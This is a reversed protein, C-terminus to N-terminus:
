LLVCHNCIFQLLDNRVAVTSEAVEFSRDYIDWVKVASEDYSVLSWDELQMVGMIVRDHGKLTNVCEQGNPKTLDWIKLTKDSAYSVLRGDALVIVKTIFAIHGNLTRICQERDPKTWDLIKITEGSWSILLNNRLETIGEPYHINCFKITKVCEQGDPQQLNWIKIIARFNNWSVLLGNKLVILGMMLDGGNNLIRVCEQGDPKTLDWITIKCDYAFSAFCDYELPRIGVIKRSHGRLTKVYEQGPPKKLNWVMIEYYNTFLLLYESTLQVGDCFAPSNTFLTKEHVLDVSKTVSRVELNKEDTCTVLRNDQLKVICDIRRAAGLIIKKDKQDNSQKLDLLQLNGEYSSQVILVRNSLAKVTEVIDNGDFIKLTKVCQIQTNPKKHNNIERLLAAMKPLSASNFQPDYQIIASRLNETLISRTQPALSEFQFNHHLSQQDGYYKEALSPAICQFSISQKLRRCTRKLVCIDRVDLYKAINHLIETPLSLLGASNTKIINTATIKIAATKQHKCLSRSSEGSNEMYGTSKKELNTIM